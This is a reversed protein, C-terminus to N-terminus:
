NQQKSLTFQWTFRIVTRETITNLSPTIERKLFNLRSHEDMLVLHLPSRQADLKFPFIFEWLVIHPCWSIFVTTYFLMCIQKVNHLVAAAATARKANLEWCQRMITRNLKQLVSIQTPFATYIEPILHDIKTKWGHSFKARFSPPNSIEWCCKTNRFHKKCPMICGACSRSVLPVPKSFLVQFRGSFLPTFYSSVNTDAAEIHQTTLKKSKESIDRINLEKRVRHERNRMGRM